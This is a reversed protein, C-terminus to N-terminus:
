SATEGVPASQVHSSLVVQHVAPHVAVSNGIGVVDHGAYARHASRLDLRLM